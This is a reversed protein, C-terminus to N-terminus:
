KHVESVFKAYDELFQQKARERSMDREQRIRIRQTQMDAIATQIVNYAFVPIYILRLWATNLTQIQLALAAIDFTLAFFAVVIAITEIMDKKKM